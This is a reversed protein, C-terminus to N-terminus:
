KDKQLLHCRSVNCFDICVCCAVIINHRLTYQSVQFVFLETDLIYRRVSQLTNHLATNTPTISYYFTKYIVCSKMVFVSENLVELCM